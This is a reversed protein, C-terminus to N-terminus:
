RKHEVIYGHRWMFHRFLLDLRYHIRHLLTSKVPVKAKKGYWSGLSLHRVFTQPLIDYPDFFPYPYVVLDSDQISLHQIGNHCPSPDYGYMQQALQCQILPLLTQDYRLNDPLNSDSARIFHRDSYYQLCRDIYPHGQVAGICHSTLYHWTTGSDIHVYWERGIFANNTLLPDLPCYVLCDTDLYIGGFKRLAFLRVYDAAFAWKHQQLCEQLWVSQISEVRDADWLVYEWDPMHQHWSSICQQVSEPFPDRSFWTYHIIKPIM